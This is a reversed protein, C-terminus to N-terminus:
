IPALRMRADKRRPAPEADEIASDILSEWEANAAATRPDGIKLRANFIEIRLGVVLAWQYQPPVYDDMDVATTNDAFYVEQRYTYPLTYSQDPIADFFITRLNKPASSARKLWYGAPTSPITNANAAAKAHPNEGIYTLEYTKLPDSGSILRGVSIMELFDNGLDYERDEALVSLTTDVRRWAVDGVRRYFEPIVKRRLRVQLNLDSSGVVLNEENAYTAIDTTTM